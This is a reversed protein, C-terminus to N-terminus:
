FQFEIQFQWGWGKQHDNGKYLYRCNIEYTPLSHKEIGHHELRLYWLTTKLFTAHAMELFAICTILVMNWHFYIMVACHLSERERWWRKERAIRKKMKFVVVDFM